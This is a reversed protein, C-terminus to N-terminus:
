SIGHDNGWSLFLEAVRALSNGNSNENLSGEFSGMEKAKFLAEKVIQAQDDHLTFSMKQFPERDGSNMEPMEELTEPDSLLASLEEDSWGLLSLDFDDSQLASLEFSLLEVDWGANLALKNDALIYARQQEPTLHDLVVVPVNMMQLFKAALLRGHGAIVGGEADILIPNVFGFESISAVIQSIQEDSHTRANREYPALRDIPWVEIRKAMAKAVAASEEVGTERNVRV